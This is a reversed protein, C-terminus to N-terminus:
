LSLSSWYQRINHVEIKRYNKYHTNTLTPQIDPIADPRYFLKKQIKEIILKTITALTFFWFWTLLVKAATQLHIM